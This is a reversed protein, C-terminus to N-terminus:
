AAELRLSSIFGFERVLDKDLKDGMDVIMKYATQSMMAPRHSRREILASFIDAITMMRVFDSIEHKALRHPYGSGDLYEHHHLIMDVMRKDINSAAVAEAGYEPHRQMIKTEEENLATPKELIALPIKAKGIDHLMGALSLRERDAESFGLYLGFAVAVGTVLLSHQYTVSHHKRVTDIWSGLGKTQVHSVVPQSAAALTAPNISIGLCAGSFIEQLAGLTTAVEKSKEFEPPGAALQVLDGRSKSLIINGNIPRHIIDSAGIANARIGEIHSTKDTVAIVKCGQPKGKLWEKLALVRTIRKLDIDVIVLKGPTVSNFQGFEVFEIKFSDVLSKRIDESRAPSDCVLLLRDMQTTLQESM